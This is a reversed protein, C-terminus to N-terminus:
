SYYLRIELRASVILESQNLNVGFEHLEKIAGYIWFFHSVNLGNLFFTLM